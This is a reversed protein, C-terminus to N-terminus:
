GVLTPTATLVELASPEGAITVTGQVPQWAASGQVRWEAAYTTDLSPAVEGKQLYKHTIDLAPYAAGRETTQTTAGDGFNWTFSAPWVRLEITQGLLTVPVIQEAPADTYFNTDFNVLTRGNPPQIILTSPPLPVFQFAQAAMEGTVAQTTPAEEPICTESFNEGACFNEFLQTDVVNTTEVGGTHTLDDGLSVENSAGVEIGQSQTNVETDGGDDASATGTMAVLIALSLVLVRM